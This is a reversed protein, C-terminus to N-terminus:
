NKLRRNLENQALKDGFKALTKLRSLPAQTFDGARKLDMATPEDGPITIKRTRSILDDASNSFPTSNGSLDNPSIADAASARAASRSASRSALFKDYYPSQSMPTFPGKEIMSTGPRDPILADALTPGAMGGIITGGTGFPSGALAGGVRATTAVSPKLKGTPTRLANGISEGIPKFADEALAGSGTGFAGGAFGAADSVLEPADYDQAVKSAFYNGALGGAFRAASLYGAEIPLAPSALAQENEISPDLPSLYKKGFVKKGADPLPTPSIGPSIAGGASAAANTQRTLDSTTSKSKFADPFDKMVASRIVDDTADSRFKGYSGDPMKVYQFDDAM